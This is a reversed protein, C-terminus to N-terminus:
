QDCLSLSENVLGHDRNKRANLLAELLHSTSEVNLPMKDECGDVSVLAGNLSGAMSVEFCTTIM